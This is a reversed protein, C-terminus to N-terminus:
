IAESGPIFKTYTYQKSTEEDGNGYQNYLFVNRSYLSIEYKEVSVRCGWFSSM